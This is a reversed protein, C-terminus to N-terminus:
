FIVTQNGHRIEYAHSMQYCSYVLHVVAAFTLFPIPPFGPVVGILFLLGAVVYMIRPDSFMENGMDTSLSNDQGAARSVIM